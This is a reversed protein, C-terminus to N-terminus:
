FSQTHWKNNEQATASNTEAVKVIPRMIAGWQKKCKSVHTKALNNMLKVSVNQRVLKKETSNIVYQTGFLNQWWEGGKGASAHQEQKPSYLADLVIIGYVAYLAAGLVVILKRKM